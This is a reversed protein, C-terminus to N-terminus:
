NGPPMPPNPLEKPKTDIFRSLIYLAGGVAGVGVVYAEPKDLYSKMRDNLRKGWPPEIGGNEDITVTLYNHSNIYVPFATDGLLVPNQNHHSENKIKTVVKKLVNRLLLFDDTELEKCLELILKSNPATLNTGPMNSYLSVFVERDAFIAEMPVSYSTTPHNYFLDYVVFPALKSRGFRVSKTHIPNILKEEIDWKDEDYTLYMAKDGDQFGFGLMYVFVVDGDNLSDIFNGTKDTLDDFVYNNLFTVHFGRKELLGKLEELKNINTLNSVTNKYQNSIILAKNPSAFICSLWLLTLLILIIHKKM